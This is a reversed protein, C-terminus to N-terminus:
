SSVSASSPSAGCRAHSRRPCGSAATRRRATQFWARTCPWGRGPSGSCTSCRPTTISTPVTGAIRRSSASCAPRRRMARYAPRSARIRSRNVTRICRSSSSASRSSWRSCAKRGPPWTRAKRPSPRPRTAHRWCRVKRSLPVRPKLGRHRNPSCSQASRCQRLQGAWDAPRCEGDHGVSSHPQPLLFSGYQATSIKQM